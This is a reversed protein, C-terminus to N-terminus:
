PNQLGNEKDFAKTFASSPLLLVVHGMEEVPQQDVQNSPAITLSDAWWCELFSGIIQFIVPPRPTLCLLLLPIHWLRHQNCRSQNNWVQM